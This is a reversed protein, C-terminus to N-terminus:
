NGTLHRDTLNTLNCDVDSSFQAKFFTAYRLSIVIRYLIFNQFKYFTHIKSVNGSVKESKVCGAFIARM